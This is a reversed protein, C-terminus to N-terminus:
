RFDASRRGFCVVGGPHELIIYRCLPHRHQQSLSQFPAADSGRHIGSLLHSLIPKKFRLSNLLQSSRCTSECIARTQERLREGAFGAPGRPEHGPEAGLAVEPCFLGPAPGLPVARPVLRLIPFGPGLGPNRLGFPLM